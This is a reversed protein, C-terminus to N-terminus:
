PSETEVPTHWEAHQRGTPDVARPDELSAGGLPASMWDILRWQDNDTSELIAVGTNQLPHEGAFGDHLGECRAAVWTRIAAGHSVAIATAGGTQRIDAIAADFRAFFEHGTEGGPMRLDLDGKAWAFATSNYIGQSEPDDRMELDGAEIERLGDLITPELVRVVALPAATQHTRLLTSVWISDIRHNDLAEPLTAAQLQGLPTLSAGPAATDLQGLVNSPTQGHRILRLRMLRVGSESSRSPGLRTIVGKNHVNNQIRVSNVVDLGVSQLQELYGATEFENMIIQVHVLDVFLQDAATPM